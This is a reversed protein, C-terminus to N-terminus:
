RKWRALFRQWNKQVRPDAVSKLQKETRAVLRELETVWRQNEKDLAAKLKGAEQQRGAATRALVREAAIRQRTALDIRANECRTILALSRLLQPDTDVTLGAESRWGALMRLEAVSQGGTSVTLWVLQRGRLPVTVRGHRDVPGEWVIANEGGNAARVTVLFGRSSAAPLLQLTTGAHAPRIELAILERALRDVPQSEFDIPSQIDCIAERDSREAVTLWTQTLRTAPKQPGESQYVHLLAGQRLPELQHEGYALNHGRPRMVFQSQRYSKILSVSRFSGAVASAIRIGLSADAPRVVPVSWSATLKDWERCVIVPRTQDILAVVFLKDWQAVAPEKGAYATRWPEWVPETADGAADPLSVPRPLRRLDAATALRVEVQWSDNAWTRLRAPLLRAARQLRPLKWRPSEDAVLVVGCRYPRLEWIENQGLTQRTGGALWGLAVLLLSCRVSPSPRGLPDSVLGKM